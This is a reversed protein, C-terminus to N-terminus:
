KKAHEQALMKLGHNWKQLESNYFPMKIIRFPFNSTVMYLLRIQPKGVVMM